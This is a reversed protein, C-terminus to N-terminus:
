ARPMEAKSDRHGLVSKPKSASMRQPPHLQLRRSQKTKRFALVTDAHPSPLLRLKRTLERGEPIIKVVCPGLGGGRFGSNNWRSCTVIRM